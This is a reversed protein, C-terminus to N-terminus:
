LWSAYEIIMSNIPVLLNTSRKSFISKKPSKSHNVASGRNHGGDLFCEVMPLFTSNKSLSSRRCVVPVLINSRSHRSFSDIYLDIFSDIPIGLRSQTETNVWAPNHRNKSWGLPSPTNPQDTWSLSDRVEPPTVEPVVTSQICQINTWVNVAEYLDLISVWAAEIVTFKFIKFYNCLIESSDLHHLYLIQRALHCYNGHVAEDLIFSSM